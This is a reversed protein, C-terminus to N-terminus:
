FLFFLLFFFGKPNIFNIISTTDHLYQSTYTLMGSPFCGIFDVNDIGHM